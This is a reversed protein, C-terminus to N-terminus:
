KSDNSNKRIKPSVLRFDIFFFFLDSFEMDFSGNYILSKLSKSIYNTIVQLAEMDEENDGEADEGEDEGDDEEDGEETIGGEVREGEDMGILELNDETDATEIKVIHEGSEGSIGHVNELHTEMAEKFRFSTNCQACHYAKTIADPHANRVHADLAKVNRFEKQCTDCM